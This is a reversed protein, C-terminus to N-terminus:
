RAASVGAAKVEVTPKGDSSSSSGGSSPELVQQIASLTFRAKASSNEDTRLVVENDRVADVVGLQGGITIVKDGRKLNAMMSERKKKDKRGAFVQMLIIFGFALLLPLMMGLGGLGGPASGGAPAASGSAGATGPAATGASLQDSSTPAPAAAANTGAQALTWSPDFFSPSTTPMPATM